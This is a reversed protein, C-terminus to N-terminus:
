KEVEAEISMSIGVSQKEWDGQSTKRTYTTGLLTSCFYLHGEGLDRVHELTVLTTGNVHINEETLDITIKEAVQDRSAKFYIPKSLINEFALEGTMRYVNVRYFLTDYTTEAVNLHVSRLIASKKIKLLIGCEYGPNNERFGSTVMKSQTQYGFTKDKYNKPKVVIENLEYVKEELYIVIDDSHQFERPSIVLSKYGICSIKLSDRDSLGSVELLFKGYEDSTTGMNKGPVGINAYAIPSKDKTSLILGNYKQASTGTAVFLMLIFLYRM